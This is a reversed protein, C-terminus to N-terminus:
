PSIAASSPAGPEAWATPWARPRLGNAMTTGHWRTTAAPPLVPGTERGLAADRRLELDQGDLSCGDTRGLSQEVDIVVPRGPEVRDSGHCCRRETSGTRGAGDVLATGRTGTAGVDLANTARASAMTYWCSCALAAAVIKARTTASNGRVLFPGRGSCIRRAVSSCSRPALRERALINARRSRAWCQTSPSGSGRGDRGCPRRRSRRVASPPGRCRGTSRRINRM